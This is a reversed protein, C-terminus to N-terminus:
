QNLVQCTLGRGVVTYDFDADVLVLVMCDVATVSNGAKVEVATVVLDM